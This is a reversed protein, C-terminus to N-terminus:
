EVTSYDSLSNNSLIYSIKIDSTNTIKINDYNVLFNGNGYFKGYDILLKNNDSFNEDDISIQDIKTNINCSAM